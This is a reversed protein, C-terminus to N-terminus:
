VWPGCRYCVVGATFCRKILDKLVPDSFVEWWPVDALSQASPAGVLGRFQEPPKLDPRKYYGQMVNPGRGIVEGKGQADADVGDADRSRV